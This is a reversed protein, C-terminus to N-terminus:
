ALPLGLVLIPQVVALTGLGLALAEFGFAALDAAMGALWLPRRILRTLLGIRMSYEAPVATAARQQLVSAVAYGFAAVLSFFVAMLGGLSIEGATRCRTSHTEALM